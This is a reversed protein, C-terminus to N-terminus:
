HLTKQSFTSSFNFKTECVHSYIYTFKLQLASWRFKINLALVTLSENKMLKSANSSRTAFYYFIDM